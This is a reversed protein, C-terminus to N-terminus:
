SSMEQKIIKYLGQQPFQELLILNGSYVHFDLMAKLDGPPYDTDDFLMLEGDRAHLLVNEIDFSAVEITHDGDIIWATRQDLIDPYQDILTPMTITSDGSVLRIRDGFVSRLYEYCPITYRHSCIDVATYILDLNSVLMLLAAHGANFGIEVISNHSQAIM